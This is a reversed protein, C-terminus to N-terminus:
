RWDRLTSALTRRARHLHSRVAPITSATIEAIQAYSLGEFEHLVLAVRQPPPLAAVAAVVADAAQAREVQDAPGRGADGLEPDTPASDTRRGRNIANLARTTVIRYLWTAFSADARFRPLAQWAAILAEQTVDEADHRNGLLRLAVRYARPAHRSVLAEYADIYGEQTRRVLYADSVVPDVGGGRRRTADVVAGTRDSVRRARCICGVFISKSLIKSRRQSV